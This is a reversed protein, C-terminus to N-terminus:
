ESRLTQMPDVSLARRAPVYAAALGAVALAACGVIVFIPNGPRIGLVIGRALRTAAIAGGLGLLLGAAILRMANRLVVGLVDGRAAGLAIRVGIERRQRLVTYSLVGYLGVATLLLGIGAFGGLLVTLFRPAAISASSREEGTRVRFMPVERDLDTLVARAASELERPPVATRLVITGIDWPLQKFPFYYIPDSTATLPAQKANAVVGVIERLSPEESGSSAGPLIRKGIPNEGPFFAHAFAENVILVKPAGTDDHETFNRGQLLPIGMAGFFGPTVVAIDSAPRDPVAAPREEIDFGVSMQHGELPLPFGAAAARVGPLVRLREILRDSFAIEGATNYRTESLGVGFTLLREPRFGPDRRVLYAFSAIFLEAGVLLVLGLAVQAVVLLSRVRHHGRAINAAGAKLSTALDLRAIQATPALSFLAVTAFVLAISFGLVRLDVGAQLLRPIPIDDGALPLAFRLILAALLIGGASGLVGLVLSESLLERTLALRSAGLASRLAFERGREIGRALLLNAVNACAILLVLGVAGLLIWLPTRSNGALRELEPIVLTKDVNRDDDPYAKALSNAIQDMQGQAAAPTFGPKLRGIADTVRAGRQVALPTADTPSNDEAITTWVQVAPGDQPFQFGEPAVGAITFLQGNIHVRRNLIGPDGNFRSQWLTHSLVAVHMGPKEEEPHFGRGLAPQVGLLPFLDWSVIEGPVQIAPLTDTLTFRNDRYCVLRDFVRNKSRFDFFNPYSLNTPHGGRRDLSRFSMLRDPQVFPLPRLVVADLVAFVATSAGIGLALMLIASVAVGKAKRFGRLAHRVDRALVDAPPLARRDRLDEKMQTLGGFQKRAAYFAERPSMGGAVFREALMDLHARIEDDM